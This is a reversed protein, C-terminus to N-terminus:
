FYYKKQEQDLFRSYMKIEKAYSEQLAPILHKAFIDPSITLNKIFDMYPLCLIEYNKQEMYEVVKSSPLKVINPTSPSIYNEKKQELCIQKYCSNYTKNRRTCVEIDNRFECIFEEEERPCLNLFPETTEESLEEKEMEERNYTDLLELISLYEISKLEEIIRKEDASLRLNDYLEVFFDNPDTEALYILQNFNNQFIALDIDHNYSLAFQGTTTTLSTFLVFNALQKNSFSINSIVDAALGIHHYDTSLHTSLAELIIRRVFKSPASLPRNYKVSM